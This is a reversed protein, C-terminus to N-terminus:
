AHESQRNGNRGHVRQGAYTVLLTGVLLAAAGIWQTLVLEEDPFICLAIMYTVLPNLLAVSSCLASGLHKQAFHFTPHSAAICVVGSIVAIWFPAMGASVLTSPQGWIIAMVLSGLTTGIAIVTFMPIPHVTAVLHKGWVTYVAWLVSTFLLMFTPLDIRPIISAPDRSIVAALGVLSLLTGIQYLRSRIVAREEHFLLFSLAIVFVISIKSILQATTATSGACGITWSWQQLINVIGIGLLANRHALVVRFEERYWVLCIILLPLTAGLYRIFNQTNVDYSTSLYRIFIPALAWGFTSLVLAAVATPKHSKQM